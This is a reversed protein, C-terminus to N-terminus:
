KKQLFDAIAKTFNEPDVFGKIQNSSIWCTAHDDSYTNQYFMFENWWNQETAWVWLLGFGEWTLFNIFAPRDKYTKGTIEKTLFKNIEEQEKTM